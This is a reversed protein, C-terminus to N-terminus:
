PDNQLWGGWMCGSYFQSPDSSTVGLLLSYRTFTKLTLLLHWFVSTMNLSVLFNWWFFCIETGPVELNEWTTNVGSGRFLGGAELFVWESNHEESVPDWWMVRPRVWFELAEGSIHQTPNCPSTTSNGGVFRWNLPINTFVCSVRLFPWVYWGGLFSKLSLFYIVWAEPLGQFQVFVSPM